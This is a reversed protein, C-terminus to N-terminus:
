RLSFLKGEVLELVGKGAFVFAMLYMFSGTFMFFPEAAPAGSLLADGALRAAAGRLWDCFRRWDGYPRIGHKCRWDPAYYFLVTEAGERYVALLQDAMTRGPLRAVPFSVTQEELWAKWHRAEVKSLLWYSM